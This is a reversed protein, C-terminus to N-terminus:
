SSPDAVEQYVALTERAMREWSFQSARALSKVRLQERLKGDNLVESIANAWGQIDKPDVTIAADGVVEPLSAANSCIVPAGCAMAELPPIGFGEYLSPFVFVDALNYFAILDSRSVHNYLIVERQLNLDRIQDRLKQFYGGQNPSGIKILRTNPSTRKIIAFAELLRGLNKRPIESGVYLIYQYKPDLQYRVWFEDPVVTKKFVELDFGHLIVRINEPAIHLEHVLIQRTYDSVTIIRDAHKLNKVALKDIWHDYFRHYETLEPDDRMMYPIIDHVTIIVPHLDRQFSFLSAMQQATFHKITKEHLHASVPYTSFFAQLDYGFRQLLSHAARIALPYYPQTLEYDVGLRSLYKQLSDAYWALGIMRDYRGVLLEIKM